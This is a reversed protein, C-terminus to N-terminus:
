AGEESQIRALFTATVENLGIIDADLASLELCIAEYRVDHHLVDTLEKDHLVNLTALRLQRALCHSAQQTNAPVLTWGGKCSDYRWGAGFSSAKLGAGGLRDTPM